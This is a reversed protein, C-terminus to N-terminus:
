LGERVFLDENKESDCGFDVRIGKGGGEMAFCVGLRVVNMEAVRKGGDCYRALYLEYFWVVYKKNHIVTM